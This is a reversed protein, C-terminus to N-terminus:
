KGGKLHTEAEEIAYVALQKFFDCLQMEAPDNSTSHKKSRRLSEEAICVLSILSNYTSKKM